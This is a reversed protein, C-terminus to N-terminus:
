NIAEQILNSIKLIDNKSLHTGTPLSIGRNAIDESVSFISDEKVYRIYPPMLHIPYFMPRTEILNDKLFSVVMDKQDKDKFLISYMWYAHKAYSALGQSDIKLNNKYINIVEERKLTLEKIRSLQGYGIAAQLNTMRYNYGIVTHWYRKNIDMGHNKYLNIKDILDKDNSMCMGGEGTTIIKNGFFSFCGIDGIGGVLRGKYEAGHAEACDEIVKLNYKKAIDMIPDMDCPHGYLHVVIIAKTKNTINEEIKLLDINWTYKESDIFIPNAGVEVVMSATAVFTLTPVIVEDGPGVGLALLALHLASTGSSCSTAYKTNCFDAFGKEFKGIFEGSSSIWKSDVAEILYKKELDSLDPEAVFIKDM